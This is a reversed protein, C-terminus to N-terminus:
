QKEIWTKFQEYTLDDTVWTIKKVEEDDAEGGVATLGRENKLYFLKNLTNGETKNTENGIIEGLYISGIITGKNYCLTVTGQGYIM